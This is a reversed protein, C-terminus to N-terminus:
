RTDTRKSAGESAHPCIGYFGISCNCNHCLVRIGSRLEELLWSIFNTSGIRPAPNGRGCDEHDFALFEFHSEGCCACSGGYMAIAQERRIRNRFRQGDRKAALREPNSFLSHRERMRALADKDPNAKRWSRQRAQYLEPHASRHEQQWKRRAEPTKHPM